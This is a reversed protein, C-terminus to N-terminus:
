RRPKGTKRGKARKALANNGRHASASEERVAPIVGCVAPASGAEEISRHYFHLVVAGSRRDALCERLFQPQFDRELFNRVEATPLQPLFLALHLAGEEDIGADTDLDDSPHGISTLATHASALLQLEYADLNALDFQKSPASRSEGVSAAGKKGRDAPATGRDAPAGKERDASCM